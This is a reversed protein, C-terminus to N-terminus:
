QVHLLAVVVQVQHVLEVLGESAHKLVKLLAEVSLSVGWLADALLELAEAKCDLLHLVHLDFVL